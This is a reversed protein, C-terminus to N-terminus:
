KLFQKKVNEFIESHDINFMSMHKKGENPRIDEHDNMNIKDFIDDITDLIKENEQLNNGSIDLDSKDDRFKPSNTIGEMNFDVNQSKNDLDENVSM